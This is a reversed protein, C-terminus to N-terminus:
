NSHLNAFHTIKLKKLMPFSCNWKQWIQTIRNNNDSIFQTKTKINKHKHRM